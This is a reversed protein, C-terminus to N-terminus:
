DVRRSSSLGALDVPLSVGSVGTMQSLGVAAEAVEEPGILREHPSREEEFMQNEVPVNKLFQETATPGPAIANVRAPVWERALGRVLGEIGAKAAAYIAGGPDAQIASVSSIIVYSGFNQMWPKAFRLASTVAVFNRRFIEEEKGESTDNFKRHSPVGLTIFTHTFPSGSGDMATSAALNEHLIMEERRSLPFRARLFRGSDIGLKDIVIVPDLVSGGRSMLLDDIAKGIGRAGGFIITKM